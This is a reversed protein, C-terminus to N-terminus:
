RSMTVSRNRAQGGNSFSAAATKEDPYPTGLKVLVMSKRTRSDFKSAAESLSSPQQTPPSTIKALITRNPSGVVGKGKMFGVAELHIAFMVAEVDTPRQTHGCKLDIM